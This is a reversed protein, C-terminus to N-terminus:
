AAVGAPLVEVALAEQKQRESQRYWSKLGLAADAMHRADYRLHEIDGSEGLVLDWDTFGLLAKDAVTNRPGYGPRVIKILKGGAARIAEVENPFRVDPIVLVECQHDTKLVYDIWTNQYVNQRVAPTGMAVWIEVPTMGLAEIVVDRLHENAKDDYFEMDQLGAWGYLEHCVQKLKKAFPIKKATGERAIVQAVLANAFTDKGTRSYHGLGIVQM